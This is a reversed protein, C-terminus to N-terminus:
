KDGYLMRLARDSEEASAIVLTNNVTGPSREDTWGYQKLTFIDGPRAKSYLREEAQEELRLVAKQLIESFPILPNKACDVPIEQGDPLQIRDATEIDIRNVLLHEEMLYDMEGSLYRYYTDKNVGLALIIGARTCPKGNEQQSQFYEGIRQIMRGTDTAKFAPPAGSRKVEVLERLAKMNESDRTSNKGRGDEAKKAAADILEAAREGNLHHADYHAAEADKREQEAKEEEAMRNWHRRKWSKVTDYSVGHKAAIEKYSMGRKYDKYAKEYTKLAKTVERSGEPGVFFGGM